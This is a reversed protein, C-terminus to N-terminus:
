GWWASMARRRPASSTSVPTIRIGIDGADRAGVQIPRRKVSAHEQTAQVHDVVAHAAAAGDGVRQSPRACAAGDHQDPDVKAAQLDIQIGDPILLDIEDAGTEEAHLRDLAPASM